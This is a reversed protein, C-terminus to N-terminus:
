ARYSTQMPVLVFLDVKGLKAGRRAECEPGMCQGEILLREAALVRDLIDVVAATTASDCTAHKTGPRATVGHTNFWRWIVPVLQNAFVSVTEHAAKHGNWRCDEWTARAAQVPVRPKTWSAGTISPGRLCSM